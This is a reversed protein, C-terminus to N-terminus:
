IITILSPSKKNASVRLKEMFQRTENYEMMYPFNPREMIEVLEDYYDKHEFVEAVDVSLTWGVIDIEDDKDSDPITDVDM